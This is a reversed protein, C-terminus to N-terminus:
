QEVKREKKGDGERKERGRWMAEWEDKGKLGQGEEGESRMRERERENYNPM